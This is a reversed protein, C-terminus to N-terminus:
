REEEGGGNIEVHEVYRSPLDSVLSTSSSRDAATRCPAGSSVVPHSWDMGIITNRVTPPTGIACTMNIETLHRWVIVNSVLPYIPRGGRMWGYSAVALQWQALLSPLCSDHLLRGDGSTVAWWNKRGARRRSIKVYEIKKTQKFLMNHFDNLAWGREAQEVLM